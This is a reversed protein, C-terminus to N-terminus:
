LLKILIGIICLCLAVPLLWSLWPPFFVSLSSVYDPIANVFDIIIPLHHMMFTVIAFAVCLIAAITLVASLM